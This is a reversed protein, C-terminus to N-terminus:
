DEVKNNFYEMLEFSEKITSLRLEQGKKLIKLPYGIYLPTDTKIIPNFVKYGKWDGIHKAEDYGNTKAFEQIDM